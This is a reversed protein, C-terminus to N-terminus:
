QRASSRIEDLTEVASHYNWYHVDLLDYGNEISQRFINSSVLRLAGYRTGFNVALDFYPRDTIIKMMEVSKENRLYYHLSNTIYAESVAGKARANLAEVIIASETKSAGDAPIFFFCAEGATSTVHDGQEANLKPMPVPVLMRQGYYVQALDGLTAMCFLGKGLTFMEIQTLEETSESEQEILKNKEEETFSFGWSGSYCLSRIIEAASQPAGVPSYISQVGGESYVYRIGMSELLYEVARDRDFSASMANKGNSSGDESYEYLKIYEFLKDYTWVGGEVDAYIDVGMADLEDLDTLLCGFVDYDVSAEGAVGYISGNVTVSEIAMQYYYDADFDFFPLASLDSVLREAFLSGMESSQACLIDAYYLGANSAELFKSIMKTRTERTVVLDAGYKESVENLVQWKTKDLVRSSGVPLPTNSDTTVLIITKGDMDYDLMMELRRAAKEAESLEEEPLAGDTVSPADTVGSPVDTFVPSETQEPENIVILCSSLSLMVATLMIVACLRAKRNPM